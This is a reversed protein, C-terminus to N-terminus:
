KWWGYMSEKISKVLGIKRSGRAAERVITAYYTGNGDPHLMDDSVNFKKYYRDEQLHNVSAVRLKLAELPLDTNSREYLKIQAQKFSPYIKNADSPWKSFAQVLARMTSIKNGLSM